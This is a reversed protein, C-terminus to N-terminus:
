FKAVLNHEKVIFIEKDEYKFLASTLNPGQICVRDGVSLKSEDCVALVIATRNENFNYTNVTAILGSKTVKETEELEIIINGNLPKLM